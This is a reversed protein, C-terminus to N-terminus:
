YGPQNSGAAELRSLIGLAEDRVSIPQVLAADM